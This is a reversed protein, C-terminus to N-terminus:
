LAAKGSVTWKGHGCRMVRGERELKELIKGVGSAAPEHLHVPYERYVVKVVEMVKKAAGSDESAKLARLIEEERQRRHAIYEIIKGRGDQILGGHGPYARGDFHEKMRALSDLYLVLDEFVATGHGLVNDGTFMANEEELIFAMHDTTHGPCHFARLTAGETIFLQEDHIPKQEPSPDNKLITADPCIKLLDKVGSVHDHHWHTLLVCSITAAESTLVSSILPQWSSRGEGTDLLIRTRGTGIIYTNTGQLTFKGPNGGLVRIIRPSLREIAPLQPLPTAM